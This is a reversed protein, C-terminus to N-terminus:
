LKYVTALERLELINKIGLKEFIRTKYTGATSAGIMLSKSIESIGQGALLLSLIEFERSSLKSFPNSTNGSYSETVLADAMSVSIYSKNELVQILAKRIEELPAEKSVFGKAGAKLFRKAYINEPSMSFILVNTNSHNSHIYQMLAFSDTQPMQIDIVAMDFTNKKLEIRATQEDVAEHIEADSCIESLLIKIGSRIVVHDDILLFKKM